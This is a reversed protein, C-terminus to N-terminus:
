TLFCLVAIQFLLKFLKYCNLKISGNKAKTLICENGAATDDDVVAVAAVAVVTTWSVMTCQHLFLCCCCWWCRVLQLVMTLVNVLGSLKVKNLKDVTNSAHSTPRTFKAILLNNDYLVSFVKNAIM